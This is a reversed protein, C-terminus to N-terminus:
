KLLVSLQRRGSRHRREDQRREAGHLASQASATACYGHHERSRFPSIGGERDVEAGVVFAPRQCQTLASALQALLEPDAAVRRSVTRPQVAVAPRDWDDAPVSVLM